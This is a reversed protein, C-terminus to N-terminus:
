ARVYAPSIYAFALNQERSSQAGRFRAFPKQAIRLDAASKRSIVQPTSGGDVRVGASSHELDPVFSAVAGTACHRIIFESSPKWSSERAKVEREMQELFGFNQKAKGEDILDGLKKKM